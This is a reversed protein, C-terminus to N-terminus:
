DSRLSRARCFPETAMYRGLELCARYSRLSRARVRSPRRSPRWTAVSTLGLETAM